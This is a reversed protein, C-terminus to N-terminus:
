LIMGTVQCMELKDTIIPEEVYTTKYTKFLGNKKYEKLEDDTCSINSLAKYILDNIMKELHPGNMKMNKGFEQYTLQLYIWEM